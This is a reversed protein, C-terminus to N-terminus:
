EIIRKCHHVKVAGGCTLYFTINIIDQNFLWIYVTCWNRRNKNASWSYTHTCAHACVCVCIYIYIHLHTHCTNKTPSYFYSINIYMYKLLTAFGIRVRQLYNCVYINRVMTTNTSICPLTIWQLIINWFGGM